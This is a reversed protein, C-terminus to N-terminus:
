MEVEFNGFPGPFKVIVTGWTAPSAKIEARRLANQRGSM